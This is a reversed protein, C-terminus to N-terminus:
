KTSKENKWDYFVQRKRSELREFTFGSIDSLKYIIIGENNGLNDISKLQIYTEDFDILYGHIYTDNNLEITFIQGKDFKNKLLAYQWNEGKSLKINKITQNSIKNQNDFLFQYSKVYDEETEFSEINEIKEVILGDELGFKTIHQLVILKDNFDVIYGVYFDDGENYKRVGILTKTKKSHAIIKELIKPKM